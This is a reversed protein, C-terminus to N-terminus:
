VLKVWQPAIVLTLHYPQEARQTVASLPPFCLHAIRGGAQRLQQPSSRHPSLIQQRPQGHARPLAQALAWGFASFFLGPVSFGLVLDRAGM